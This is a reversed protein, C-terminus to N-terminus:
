MCHFVRFHFHSIDIASVFSIAHQYPVGKTGPITVVSWHGCTLVRELCTAIVPADICNFRMYCRSLSYFVTRFSVKKAMTKGSPIHMVKKVSGGNGQGLEQLEKLDENRLDYKTEANMDMNALKQTLDSHYAPRTASTSGTVPASNPTNSVMLLNDDGAVSQTNVAVKPAALNMPPPRRRGSPANRTAVPQKATTAGNAAATPELLSPASPTMTPDPKSVDLQLAKFNRKKRKIPASTAMM